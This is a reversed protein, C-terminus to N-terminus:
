NCCSRQLFTASLFQVFTTIIVLDVRKVLIESVIARFRRTQLLIELRKSVPILLITSSQSLAQTTSHHYIWFTLGSNAISLQKLWSCLKRNETKSM